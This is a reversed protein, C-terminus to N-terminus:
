NLEELVEDTLLVKLHYLASEIVSDPSVGMFKYYEIGDVIFSLCYGPGYPYEEISPKIIIDKLKLDVDNNSM